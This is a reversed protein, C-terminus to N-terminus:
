KAYSAETAVGCMNSGRELRMYGGEGWEEGWSNKILWFKKNSVPDIGYGCLLVAHDLVTKSCKSESYVGTAYMQFSAKSADIAVAICYGRNVLEQQLASESQRVSVVASIAMRNTETPDFHCAKGLPLSDNAKYPYFADSNPGHQDIMLQFGDNTWGGACGQSGYVWSCDLVNQESGNQTAKFKSEVSGMAAFAWCSGCQLQDKVSGTTGRLDLTSPLAALKAASLPAQAAATAQQRHASSASLRKGSSASIYGNRQIFQASPINAFKNMTM